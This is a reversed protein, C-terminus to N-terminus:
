ACSPLRSMQGVEVLGCSGCEAEPDRLAGAATYAIETPKRTGRWASVLATARDSRAQDRLVWMMLAAGTATLMGIACLAPWGLHALAALATGAIGGAAKAAHSM